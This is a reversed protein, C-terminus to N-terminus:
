NNDRGSQDVNASMRSGAALCIQTPGTRGKACRLVGGSPIRRPSIGRTTWTIRAEGGSFPHSKMKLSTSVSNFNTKAAMGVSSVAGIITLVTGAAILGYEFATSGSQDSLFKSIQWRL